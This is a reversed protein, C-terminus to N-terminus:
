RVKQADGLPLANRGAMAFRAAICAMCAGGQGGQRQLSPRLRKPRLHGPRRHQHREWAWQRVDVAAAATAHADRPAGGPGWRAERSGPSRWSPGVRLGAAVRRHVQNRPRDLDRPRGAAHRQVQQGAVNHAVAQARGNLDPLLTLSIDPGGDCPRAAGQTDANLAMAHLPILHM